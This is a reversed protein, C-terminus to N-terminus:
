LLVMLYIEIYECLVQLIIKLGIKVVAHTMSFVGKRIIGKKLRIQSWSLKERM